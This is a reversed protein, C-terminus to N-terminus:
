ALGLTQANSIQGMASEGVQVAQHCYAYAEDLKGLMTYIVGLNNLTQAHMPKALLVSQYHASLPPSSFFLSTLPSALSHSLSPLHVPSLEFLWPAAPLVPLTGDCVWWVSLYLLSFAGLSICLGACVGLIYSSLGPQGGISKELNGQDKYIVGLNNYAEACKPNIRM